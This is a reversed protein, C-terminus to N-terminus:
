PYHDELFAMYESIQRLIDTEEADTVKLADHETPKVDQFHWEVEVANTEEDDVYRDIEVVVGADGRFTITCQRM